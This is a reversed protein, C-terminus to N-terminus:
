MTELTFHHVHEAAPRWQSCLAARALPPPCRVVIADKTGHLTNPGWHMEGLTCVAARRM